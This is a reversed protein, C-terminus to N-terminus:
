IDYFGSEGLPSTPFGRTKNGTDTFSLRTAEKILFLMGAKKHSSNNTKTITFTQHSTYLTLM